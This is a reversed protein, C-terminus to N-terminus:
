YGASIITVPDMNLWFLKSLIWMWGLCFFNLNMQDSKYGDYVLSCLFAVNSSWKLAYIYLRSLFEVWIHQFLYIGNIHSSVSSSSPLFIMFVSTLLILFDCVFWYKFSIACIHLSVDYAATVLVLAIIICCCGLPNILIHSCFVVLDSMDPKGSFFFLSLSNWPWCSWIYGCSYSCVVKVGHYELHFHVFIHLAPRNQLFVDLLYVIRHQSFAGCEKLFFEHLAFPPSFCIYFKIDELKDLGDLWFDELKFVLLICRNKEM